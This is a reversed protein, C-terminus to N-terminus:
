AGRLDRIARCPCDGVDSPHTGGISRDARRGCATGACELRCRLGCQCLVVVVDEDGTRTRGAQGGGDGGGAVPGPHQEDLTAGGQRGVRAGGPHAGARHLDQSRPPEVAGHPGARDVGLGDHRDPARQGFWGQLRRRQAVRGRLLCAAEARHRREAARLVVDLPHQEPVQVVEAGLDPEAGRHRARVLVGVPHARRQRVAAHDPCPEEGTRVAGAARDAGHEADPDVLQAREGVEEVHLKARVQARDDPRNTGRQVDDGACLRGSRPRGTRRVLHQKRGTGPAPHVRSLTSRVVPPGRGPEDGGDPGRHTHGVEGQGDVGDERERHGSRQGRREAGVGREEDAVRRVAHRGHAAGAHVGGYVGAVVEAPPEGPRGSAQAAVRQQVAVLRLPPGDAPLVHQARQAAAARRAAGAAEFVVEASAADLGEGRRYRAGPRRVDRHEVVPPRDAREVEEVAPEGQQGSAPRVTPPGGCPHQCRVPSGDHRARGPRVQDVVAAEDTPEPEPILAGDQDPRVTVTSRCKGGDVRSM